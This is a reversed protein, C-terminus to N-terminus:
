GELRALGVAAMAENVPMCTFIHKKKEKRKM